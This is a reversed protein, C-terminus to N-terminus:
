KYKLFSMVEAQFITAKIAKGSDQVIKGLKGGKIKKKETNELTDDADKYEGDFFYVASQLSGHM